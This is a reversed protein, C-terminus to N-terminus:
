GRLADLAEQRTPFFQFVSDLKTIRFVKHLDAKMGCICVEGDVADAKKRLTLLVGLTQSSLFRVDTFDIAIKRRGSQDVLAYLESGLRQIMVPDIISPEAFEVVTIDDVTQTRIPSPETSM